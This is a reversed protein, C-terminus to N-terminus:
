CSVQIFKIPEVKNTKEVPELYTDSLVYSASSIALKIGDDQSSSPTNVLKHNYDHSQYVNLSLPNTCAPIVKEFLFDRIQQAKEYDKSSSTVTIIEPAKILISQLLTTQARVVTTHDTAFEDFARDLFEILSMMLVMTMERVRDMGLFNVISNQGITFMTLCNIAMIAKNIQKDFLRSYIAQLCNDIIAQNQLEKNEIALESFCVVALSSLISTEVALCCQDNHTDDYSRDLLMRWMLNCSRGFMAGGNEWVVRYKGSGPQLYMMPFKDQTVGGKSLKALSDPSTSSTTALNSEALPRIQPSSHNANLVRDSCLLTVLSALLTAAGRLAMEAFQGLSIDDSVFMRNLALELSLICMRVGSVGLSFMLPAEVLLIQIQDINPPQNKAFSSLSILATQLFRSRLFLIRDTIYDSFRCGIRFIATQATRGRDDDINFSTAMEAIWWATSIIVDDNDPTNQSCDLM